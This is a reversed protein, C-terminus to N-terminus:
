SIKKNLCFWVKKCTKKGDHHLCTYINNKGDRRLFTFKQSFPLIKPKQTTEEPISDDSSDSQTASGDSAITKQTNKPSIKKSSSNIRTKSNSPSRGSISNNKIQDKRSTRPEDKEKSKVM